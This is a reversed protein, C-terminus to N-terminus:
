EQLLIEDYWAQDDDVTLSCRNYYNPQIILLKKLRDSTFPLEFRSLGMKYVRIDTHVDNPTALVM